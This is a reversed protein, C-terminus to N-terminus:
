EDIENDLSLHDNDVKKCEQKWKSFKNTVEVKDSKSLEKWVLRGMAMWYAESGKPKKIINKADISDIITTYTDRLNNDNKCMIIKQMFSLSNLVVLSEQKNDMDEITNSSESINTTSESTNRISRKNHNMNLSDFLELRTIIVNTNHKIDATNDIIKSVETNTVDSLDSLKNEISKIKPEILKNISNKDESQDNKYNKLENIDSKIEHIENIINSIKIDIKTLFDIVQSNEM